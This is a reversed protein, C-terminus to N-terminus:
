PREKPLHLTGDRREAPTNYNPVRGRTIASATTNRLVHLATIEEENIFFTPKEADPVMAHTELRHLLQSAVQCARVPTMPKPTTM